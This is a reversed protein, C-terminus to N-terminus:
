PHSRQATDFHIRPEAPDLMGIIRIIANDIQIRIVICEFLHYHCRLFDFFYQIGDIHLAIHLSGAGGSHM